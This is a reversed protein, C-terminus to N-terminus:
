YLALKDPILQKVENKYNGLKVCHCLLQLWKNTYNTM